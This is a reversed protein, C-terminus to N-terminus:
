SGLGAVMPGEIFRVAAVKMGKEAPGQVHKQEDVVIVAKGVIKHM